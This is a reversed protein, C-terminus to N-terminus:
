GTATPMCRTWWNGSSPPAAWSPVPITAPFDRTTAATGDPSISCRTRRVVLGQWSRPSNSSTKIITPLKGTPDCCISTSLLQVNPVWAPVHSDSALTALGFQEELWTQHAQLVAELSPYVQLSFVDEAPWTATLLFLHPHRSVRVQARNLLPHQVALKLWLGAVQVLCFNYSAPVDAIQAATTAGEPLSQDVVRGVNRWEPLHFVATLPFALTLSVTGAKAGSTAQVPRASDTELGTFLPDADRTVPEGPAAATQPEWRLTVAEGTEFHLTGAHAPTHLQIALHDSGATPSM